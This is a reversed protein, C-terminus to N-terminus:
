ADREIAPKRPGLLRSDGFRRGGAGLSVLRLRWVHRASHATKRLLGYARKETILNLQTNTNARAFGRIWSSSRPPGHPRIGTNQRHHRQDEITVFKVRLFFPFSEREDSLM